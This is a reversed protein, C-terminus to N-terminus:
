PSQQISPNSNLFSESASQLSPVVPETDRPHLPLRRPGPSVANQPHHDRRYLLTPSPHRTYRNGDVVKRRNTKIFWNEPHEITVPTSNGSVLDENAPPVPSRGPTHQSTFALLHNRRFFSSSSFLDAFARARRLFPAIFPWEAIITDLFRSPPPVENTSKTGGPRYPGPLISSSPGIIPLIAPLPFPRPCPVASLCSLDPSHADTLVPGSSCGVPSPHLRAIQTCRLLPKFLPEGGLGPLHMLPPHGGSM